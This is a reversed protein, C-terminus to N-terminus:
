HIKLQEAVFNHSFDNKCIILAGTTNKDIRHVIGPRLVGNIGSLNDKCHYMVANVLTGTYHGAAPHVVMDKPKNVILVDNDEYIIDIPIDEAVINTELVEPIDIDIIDESKVIYNSKCVQNNVLINGNKLLKQIYTRSVDSIISCLFKDIRINDDEESVFYKNSM